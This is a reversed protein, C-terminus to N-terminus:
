GVPGLDNADANLRTLLTIENGHAADLVEDEVTGGFGSGDASYVVAGDLGRLRLRLIDGGISRRSLRALSAQEAPTLGSSLPHGDLLPEVAAHAVLAAQAKAESLGRHRAETQDSRVLVAGLALVPLLSLVAYVAFARATSPRRAAVM